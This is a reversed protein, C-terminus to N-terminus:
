VLNKLNKYRLITIYNYYSKILQKSMQSLLNENKSTKQLYLFLSDKLNDPENKFQKNKKTSHIQFFLDINDFLLVGMDSLYECIKQINM